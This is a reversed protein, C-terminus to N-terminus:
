WIARLRQVTVWVRQVTPWEASLFLIMLGNTGAAHHAVRAQFIKITERCRARPLHKKSM